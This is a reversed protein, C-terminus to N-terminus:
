WSSSFRSTSRACQTRVHLMSAITICRLQHIVCTGVHEYKGTTPAPTLVRVMQSEPESRPLSPKRERGAYQLQLAYGAFHIDGIVSRMTVM